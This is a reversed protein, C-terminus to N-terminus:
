HMAADVVLAGLIWILILTGNVRAVAIAADRDTELRPPRSQNAYPAV